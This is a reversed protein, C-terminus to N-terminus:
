TEPIGAPAPSLTVDEELMNHRDSASGKDGRETSNDASSSNNDDTIGSEIDPAPVPSISPAPTSTVRNDQIRGDDCSCACLMGALVAAIVTLILFKRM